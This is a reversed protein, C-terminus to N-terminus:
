CNGAGPGTLCQEWHDCHHSQLPRLTDIKTKYLQSYFRYKTTLQFFQDTELQNISIGQTLSSKHMRYKEYNFLLLDSDIALM